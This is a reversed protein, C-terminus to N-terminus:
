TFHNKKRQYRDIDIEIETGNEIGIGTVSKVRIGDGCENEVSTGNEIETETESEVRIRARNEIRSETGGKIEIRNGIVTEIEVFGSTLIVNKRLNRLSPVTKRISQCIREGNKTLQDVELIEELVTDFDEEEESENQVMKLEEDSDTTPPTIMQRASAKREKTIGMMPGKYNVMRKMSSSIVVAPIVKEVNRETAKYCVHNVQISTIFLFSFYEEIEEEDELHLKM